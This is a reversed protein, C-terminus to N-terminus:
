VEGTTFLAVKKEAMETTRKIYDALDRPNALREVRSGTVKKSM